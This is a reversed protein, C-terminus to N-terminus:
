ILFKNNGIARDKDSHKCRQDSKEALCKACSPHFTRQKNKEKLRVPFFPEKNENQIVLAKVFGSSMIKKSSEDILQKDKYVFSEVKEDILIEYNGFPIECLRAAESYASNLDLYYLNTQPNESKVWKMTYLQRIGGFLAQRPQLRQFQILNPKIKERFFANEKKLLDREHECQWICTVHKVDKKFNQKLKRIQSKLFANEEKFTRGSLTTPEIKNHPYHPCDVPHYCFFLDGASFNFIM